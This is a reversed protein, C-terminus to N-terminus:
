AAKYGFLGDRKIVAAIPPPVFREWSSVGQQIEALIDQRRIPLYDWDTPNLGVLLRNELLHAFLHKLHPAVRFNELVTVRGSEPDISPYVYLRTPNKLFQGLGGLLGGETDNYFSENFIEALKSIGLALGLPRDTYRSLYSVLRHYRRFNSLMVPWGLARLTDARQLFDLHDIADGTKLHRLTM